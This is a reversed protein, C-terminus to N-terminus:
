RNELRTIASQSAPLNSFVLSPTRSGKSPKPVTPLTNPYIPIFVRVKHLPQPPGCHVSAARTSGNRSSSVDCTAAQRRTTRLPPMPGPQGTIAVLHFHRRLNVAHVRTFRLVPNGQWVGQRLGGRREDQCQVEVLFRSGTGFKCKWEPLPQWSLHDVCCWGM